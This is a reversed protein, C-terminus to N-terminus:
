VRGQPKTERGSFVDRKTIKLEDFVGEYYTLMTRGFAKKFIKDMRKRGKDTIYYLEKRYVKQIDGEKILKRFCKAVNDVVSPGFRSKIDKICFVKLHIGTALVIFEQYTISETYEAEKFAVLTRIFIETKHKSGHKYLLESQKTFYRDNIRLINLELTAQRLRKTQIKKQGREYRIANLFRRKTALDRKWFAKYKNLEKLVVQMNKNSFAVFEKYEDKIAQVELEERTTM